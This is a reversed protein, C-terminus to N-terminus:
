SVLMWTKVKQHKLHKQERGIHYGGCFGCLYVHRVALTGARYMAMLGQWAEERTEYRRKNTCERRRKRRKSSM